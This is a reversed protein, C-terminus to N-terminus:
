SNNLFLKLNLFKSNQFLNANTKYFTFCAVLRTRSIDKEVSHASTTTDQLTPLNQGISVLQCM